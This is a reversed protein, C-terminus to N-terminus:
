RLLAHLRFIFQLIAAKIFGHYKISSQLNLQYKNPAKSGGVLHNISVGPYYYIKKGLERARKCLDADEYYLFFKEDFGGLKEFLVRKILIAAGYVMEVDTPDNGDPVYQSYANKVGLIYEKIAGWLSPLRKASAQVQGDPQILKPAVVGADPHSEYFSTLEQLIPEKMETDPNLIFLYQGRALKSAQNIGKAFGLNTNSETLKVKASFKRIKEITDDQSSNDLIIIETNQPLNNILSRLCKEISDQNNYTVM